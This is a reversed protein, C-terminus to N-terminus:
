FLQRPIIRPYPLQCFHLRVLILQNFVGGRREVLFKFPAFLKKKPMNKLVALKRESLLIRLAECCKKQVEDVAKLM